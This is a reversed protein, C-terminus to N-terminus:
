PRKRGIIAMAAGVIGAAIPAISNRASAFMMVVPLTFAMSAQPGLGTPM